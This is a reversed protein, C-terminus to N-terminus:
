WGWCAACCCCTTSARTTAARGLENQSLLVVIYGTLLFLGKLVLSFDDIVYRGDFLSRPGDGSVALTVLPISAGLLVFGTISATAWKRSEDVLLDSALVINIGVILVLEPAIAHWDIVPTAWESAQAFLSM